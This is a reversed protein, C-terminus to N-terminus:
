AYAIIVVGSTAGLIFWGLGGFLTIDGVKIMAAPMWRFGRDLDKSQPFQGRMKLLAAIQAIGAFIVGLAFFALPLALINEIEGEKATAGLLTM